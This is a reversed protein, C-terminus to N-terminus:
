INRWTKKQKDGVGVFDLGCEGVAVIKGQTSDFPQDPASLYLKELKDIDKQISVGNPYKIAEHPHIGITSYAKLNPINALVGTVQELAKKSLQVDVGVNIITTVSAELARKIVQDLDDNYLDWYLHTHTDVLNM